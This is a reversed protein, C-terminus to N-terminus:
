KTKQTLHYGLKTIELTVTEKEKLVKLYSQVMKWSVDTRKFFRNYNKNKNRHSLLSRKGRQSVEQSNIERILKWCNNLQKKLYPRMTYESSVEFSM